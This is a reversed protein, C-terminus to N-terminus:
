QGTKELAALVETEQEPQLQGVWVQTVLGADNVLLLTPTAIVGLNNLRIQRIEDIRVGNGALYKQGESVPQPLM